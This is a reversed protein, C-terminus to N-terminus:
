IGTSVIVSTKRRKENPALAHRKPLRVVDSSLCDAHRLLLVLWQVLERHSFQVLQVWLKGIINYFYAWEIRLGHVGAIEGTWSKGQSAEEMLENSRHM